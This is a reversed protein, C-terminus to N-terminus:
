PAPSPTPSGPEKTLMLFQEVTTTPSRETTSFPHGSYGLGAPSLPQTMSPTRCSSSESGPTDPARLTDGSTYVRTSGGLITLTLHTRFSCHACSTLTLTAILSLRLFSRLLARPSSGSTM